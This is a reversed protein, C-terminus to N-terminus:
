ELKDKKYRRLRNTTEMEEKIYLPIEEIKVFKEKQAEGSILQKRKRTHCTAARKEEVLQLQEDFAENTGDKNHSRRNQM